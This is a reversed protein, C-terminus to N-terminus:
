ASPKSPHSSRGAVLVAYAYAISLFWLVEAGRTELREQVFHWGFVVSSQYLFLGSWLLLIFDSLAITLKSVSYRRASLWLGKDQVAEQPRFIAVPFITREIRELM